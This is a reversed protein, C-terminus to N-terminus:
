VCLGVGFLVAVQDPSVNADLLAVLREPLVNKNATVGIDLWIKSAYNASVLKSPATLFVSQSIKELLPLQQNKKFTAEVLRLQSLLFDDKLQAVCVEFAGPVKQWEKQAIVSQLNSSAVLDKYEQAACDKHSALHAVLESVQEFKGANIMAGVVKQLRSAVAKPELNAVMQDVTELIVATDDLALAASLQWELVKPRLYKPLTEGKGMGLLQKCWAIVAPNDGQTQHYAYIREFVSQALQPEKEWTKLILGSVEEIKDQALLIDVKQTFFGPRYATFKKNALCKDLLAMAEDTQEKTRLEGIAAFQAEVELRLAEAAAAQREEKSQKPKCGPVGAVLVCASVVCMMLERM